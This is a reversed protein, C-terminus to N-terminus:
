ALGWVTKLNPMVLHYIDYMEAPPEADTPADAPAARTAVVKKEEELKLLHLIVNTEAAKHLHEPVDKYLETVLEAATASKGAGLSELIQADRALRHAIYDQIKQKGNDVVPGHAPYIRTKETCLSLLRNLTSMYATLDSFHSSGTGLVIDGTFIADEEPLYFCIHDKTHGPTHIAKLTGGEFSFEDGDKMETFEIGEPLAKGDHFDEKM